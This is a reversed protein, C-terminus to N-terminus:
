SSCPVPALDVRGQAGHEGILDGSKLAARAKARKGLTALKGLAWDAAKGFASDALWEMMAREEARGSLGAM